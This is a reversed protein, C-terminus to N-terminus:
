PCSIAITVKRNLQDFRPNGPATPHPEPGWGKGIASIPNPAGLSVLEQKVRDARRQSLDGTGYHAVYGRIEVTATPVTKLYDAFKKLVARAAVPDRFEAEDPKFGVEKDDPLESEANCTLQIGHVPFTVIGVEPSRTAADATNPEALVLPEGAGARVVIARWLDVVFARSRDDLAAQPEATYGLGSLVVTRGKLNPLLGERKLADAIVKPKKEPLKNKRFDIPRTTQVGSDILVVTGDDGAAGAAISLAGLIDAQPAQARAANLMRVVGEAFSRKDMEFNQETQAATTFTASGSVTPRGDVRVVTIKGCGNTTDAVLQRVETPLTPAPSNARVGVAIVLPPHVPQPCQFTFESGFVLEKFAGCGTTTPVSLLVCLALM